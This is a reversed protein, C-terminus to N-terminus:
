MDQRMTKFYFTKTVFTLLKTISNRCIVGLLFSITSVGKGETDCDCYVLLEM